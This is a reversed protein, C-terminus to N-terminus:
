PLAEIIQLTRNVLLAFTEADIVYPPM